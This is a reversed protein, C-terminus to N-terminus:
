LILFSFPIDHIVMLLAREQHGLNLLQIVDSRAHSFRVRAKNKLIAIRSVALKALSSFKSTRLKRGFLADLKKGM